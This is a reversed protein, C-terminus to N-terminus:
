ICSCFYPVAQLRQNPMSINASPTANGLHSPSSATFNSIGGPSQSADM